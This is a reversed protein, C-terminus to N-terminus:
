QIASARITALDNIDHSLDNNKLCYPNYCRGSVKPKVSNVRVSYQQKVNEMERGAREDSIQM